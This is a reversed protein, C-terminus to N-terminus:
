LLTTKIMPILKFVEGAGVTLVLSPHQEKLIDKLNNYDSCWKYKLNIKKLLNESSVGKIPLERAPYIDLLVLKDVLSLVKCFDEELAQTRSFLHPEFILFIKKTSYLKRVSEILVSLEKPHHAYDDILILKESHHHYEFRRKVGKFSQFAKEIVTKKVGLSLALQTALAANKVNHDCLNILSGNDIMNTTHSIQTLKIDTEFYSEIKDFIEKKISNSIFVERKISSQISITSNNFINLCFMAYAEVMSDKSEYTDIHDRDLSTILGMVPNLELFSRDYEDAEVIMYDSKGLLVNSQYNNSIGGFFANPDYGAVTLIHSLMISVTTKGHTGTIAIVNYDSCIQGLLEARKVVVFNNKNFFDLFINEENIAPTFVVLTTSNDLFNDTISQLSLKYMVKIGMSELKSSLVSINKDYGMVNFNKSYCWSALGSMGVGGIGLFFINKYKKFDQCM